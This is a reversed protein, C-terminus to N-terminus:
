ILAAIKSQAKAVATDKSRPDGLGEARIFTVDNLGIFGLVARLYPEFFDMAVLPGNSLVSGRASIVYVRKNDVLGKVGEPGYSFTRGARVVHDIWAKLVSPISFNWIPASIVIVDSALLQDVAEDSFRAAEQQATNRQQPPTFFAALQEQQLHPLPQVSLDRETVFVEGNESLKELLEKTLKRSVSEGGRPSSQILLINM